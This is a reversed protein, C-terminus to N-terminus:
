GFCGAGDTLRHRPDTGSRSLKPGITSPKGGLLDSFQGDYVPHSLPCSRRAASFLFSCEPPRPSPDARHKRAPLIEFPKVSRCENRSHLGLITCDLCRELM